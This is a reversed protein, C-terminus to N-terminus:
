KKKTKDLRARVNKLWNKNLGSPDNKAGIPAYRKQLYELYDGPKGADHWRKWNNRVTNIAVKRAEAENAVKVSLIGYPKKAKAGGEAIYIADAIREAESQSMPVFAASAPKTAGRAAGKEGPSFRVDPFPAVYDPNLKKLSTAPSGTGTAAGYAERFFQAQSAIAIMDDLQGSKLAKMIRDQMGNALRQHTIQLEKVFQADPAALGVDWAVRTFNNDTTTVWERFESPTFNEVRKALDVAEAPSFMANVIKDAIEVRDIKSLGEAEAAKRAAAIDEASVTVEAKEGRIRGQVRWERPQFGAQLTLTNGRFQAAEPAGQVEKINELNLNQRAEIFSPAPKKAKLAAAELQNRFPNVEAIARGSIGQREAEAGTFEGRPRAPVEVRGAKTAESVEQGSLNLPRRGKQLRPTEPLKFGFLANIVDAKVQELPKAGPRTAPAFGGADTVSRPVVLPEGGGTAGRMQNQVFAQTDRYLETWAEPTFSKTKADIAYPSLAQADPTEALFRALKHANAAFVEPAWGQVQYKGGQTKTVKEPFFTKEWLSRAEPPMDRFAEIVERRVERNSSIAAAPEDPASLYNLKVGEQTAISEAIQGLLERPSRTGGAQPLEPAADALTRAEAAADPAEPATAAEVVVPEEPAIAEPAPALREVQPRAAARRSFVVEAPIDRPEVLPALQEAAQTLSVPEPRPPAAPVPEPPRPTLVERAADRVVDNFRLSSPAGTVGESTKTAGTLDLGMQEAFNVLTNGIKQGLTAPAPLEALPTNRFLQSFNEAVLENLVYDDSVRKGLNSEYQAKYDAIQEPTYVERATNILDAQREPSLLSHFLHGVEHTVPSASSNLVVARRTKGDQAPLSTDFYGQTDALDRVAEIEPGTLASGKSREANELLTQQFVEPELVYIEAGLDRTAERFANINNQSEAPLTKIAQSHASDLGPEIGYSKSKTEPFVLEKPALRSGSIARGPAEAAAIAGKGLGGLLAGAGLIAGATTDDDSLAAIPAGLAAGEVGGALTKQFTTSGALSDAVNVALRGTTELGKGGLTVLSKRGQFPIYPGVTKAVKGTLEATKGAVKLPAIAASALIKGLTKEAAAKTAATFAVKGAANSAKFVGGGAVITLPDVLSLREIVAPDLVVGEKALTDADLGIAKATEGKGSAVEALQKGFEVDESMQALLESDSEPVAQFKRLGTRGLDAMGTASLESGAAAEAVGKKAVRKTEAQLEGRMQPDFIDGTFVSGVLNVAPQLGVNLAGAVLDRAGGFIKGVTPAAETVVAKAVEGAKLGETRRRRYVELLKALKAPDSAVDPNAAFYDKPSFSDRSADLDEVSKLDLDDAEQLSSFPDDVQELGAFADPTSVEELGAFPDAAPPLEPPAAIPPADLAPAGFM